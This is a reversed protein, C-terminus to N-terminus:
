HSYISRIKNFDCKFVSGPSVYSSLHGQGLYVNGISLDSSILILKVM